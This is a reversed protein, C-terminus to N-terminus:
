ARVSRLDPIVCAHEQPARTSVFQCNPLRNACFPRVRLGTAGADDAEEAASSRNSTTGGIVLAEAFDSNAPLKSLHAPGHTPWSSCRGLGSLCCKTGIQLCKALRSRRSEFGRGGAHCAPRPRAPKPPSRRPNGPRAPSEFRRRAPKAPAQPLRRRSGAPHARSAGNDRQSVIPIQAPHRDHNEDRGGAALQKSRLCARARALSSSSTQRAAGADRNGCLGVACSANPSSASKRQRPRVRVSRPTAKGTVCYAPEPSTLM